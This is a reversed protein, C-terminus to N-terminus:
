VMFDIEELKNAILIPGENFPIIEINKCYNELENKKNKLINETEKSGAWVQTYISGEMMKIKLEMHGLSPLDLELSVEWIDQDKKVGGGKYNIFEIKDYIGSNDKTPIMLASYLHPDLLYRVATNEDVPLQQVAEKIFAMEKESRPGFKEIAKILAEKKEIIMDQGTMPLEKVLILNDQNGVVSLKLKQGVELPIKSNVPLKQDKIRLLIQEGDKSIVTAEFTEGPTLFARPAKLLTILNNVDNGVLQVL